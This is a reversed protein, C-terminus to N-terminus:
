QAFCEELWTLERRQLAVDALDVDKAHADPRLNLLDMASQFRRRSEIFREFLKWERSVVNKLDTWYLEGMLRDPTLSRFRARREEPLSTLVADTWERDQLSMKLVVRIFERMKERLSIAGVDM